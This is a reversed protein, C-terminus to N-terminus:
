TIRRAKLSVFFVAIVIFAAAQHLLALSMPVILVLTMIGITAQILVASTFIPSIRKSYAGYIVLVTLAYAVIRHNFQVLAVNDIFNEIGLKNLYLSSLPPAFGGDMLPWTNFLKGAGNGAVLAGLAIQM